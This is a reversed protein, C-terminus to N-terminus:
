LVSRENGPFDLRCGHQTCGARDDVRVYDGHQQPPREIQERRLDPYVDEGLVGDPVGDPDVATVDRRVEPEDAVVRLGSPIRKLVASGRAM